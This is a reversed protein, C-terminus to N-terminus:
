ASLPKRWSPRFLLLDREDDKSSSRDSTLTTPVSLLAATVLSSLLAFLDFDRSLAASRDGRSLPLLRDLGEIRTLSLDRDRLLGSADRARGCRLSDLSATVLSLLM